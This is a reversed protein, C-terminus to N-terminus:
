GVIYVFDGPYIDMDLGYIVISEGNIINAKKFSILPTNDMNPSIQSM